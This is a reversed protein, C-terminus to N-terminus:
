FVLNLGSNVVYSFTQALDPIHCINDIQNIHKPKKNERISQSM